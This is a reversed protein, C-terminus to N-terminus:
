FFRLVAELISKISYGEGIYYAFDTSSFPLKNKGRNRAESQTECCIVWLEELDRMLILKAIELSGNLV